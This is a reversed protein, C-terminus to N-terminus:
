VKFRVFFTTGMFNSQIDIKANHRAAIGYCTALGLGTGNDKTTFFPTGIKDLIDLDIGEGQDQVSLVVENGDRYLRITLNKGSSMAELGNRVLNLVMQRIEKEDLLLDPVDELEMLIDKDTMMADSQILPFLTEIIPKLNNIKYDSAKNKALSLFESIILNARDLEEIMLNFYEQNREQEKKGGLMQLFGRITTMPNRIEHAIGAAMEGILNLNSLRRMEHEVRKLETIDQIVFLICDENSINILSTALLGSRIEGSKTHYSVKHNHILGKEKIKKIDNLENNPDVFIKLGISTHGIIEEHTYVIYQCLSQNVCVYIGTELSKIFMLAPSANFAKSFREESLRLNEEIQKRETIDQMVALICKENGIDLIETSLLGVRIKGSKTRYNFEENCISGQKGIKKSLNDGNEQEAYIDLEILTSGIVEELSYGTYKLWSNNVDIYRQDEFSIISMSMLSPSAKFAKSFMDESLRINNEAQKREAIQGQLQTNIMQVMKLEDTLVNGM